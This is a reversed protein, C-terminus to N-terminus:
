EGSLCEIVGDVRSIYLCKNAVAMGDWIPPADLNFTNIKTGDNASVFWVFGNGRGEFKDFAEPENEKEVLNTMGGLLLVDGARVLARPRMDIAKSWKWTPKFSKQAPRLDPLEGDDATFPTHKDAYLTYGKLRRIGWVIKDDFVLTLGYPVAVSSKYSGPRNAIWSYAVPIRSFDGTGIMLHSRHNENGDLLSSTSFLHQSMKEQRVCKRNFRFTKLYISEGDSVLIDSTTGGKMSFADSLDPAQFTKADTANQTLKKFMELAGEKGEDSKPHASHVRTEYLIKGTSPKLGYMYIGGDLYSSRGATVYVVGDLVMVSGHVPWVSEVRDFAVTRFDQPSARFRWVLAGDKLRLRYVYGDASGFFVHEGYITPPSDVRGGAAFMWHKSGDRTNLAIVRHDDITSIILTGKAIVPQSIKEAVKVQWTRKLSSSVTSPTSGSRLVDHRYTPWETSNQGTGKLSNPPIYVHYAPGKELRPQEKIKISRKKEASFAWFGYLKAEM